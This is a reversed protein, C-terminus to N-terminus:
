LTSSMQLPRWTTSSESSIGSMISNMSNSLSNLAGLDHSLRRREFFSTIRSYVTSDDIAKIKANLDATAAHLVPNAACTAVLAVGVMLNKM